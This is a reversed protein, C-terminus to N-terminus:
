QVKPKEDVLYPVYRLLSLFKNNLDKMTMSGLKLECFEKAREEYYQKSLFKKKFYRKVTSWNLDKEKIGKVRKLDQWWIDAKGLLNYIAMRAKLKNSYKYIQFYKKM